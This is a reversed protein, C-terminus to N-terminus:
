DILDIRREFRMREGDVIHKDLLPMFVTQMLSRDGQECDTTIRPKFQKRM